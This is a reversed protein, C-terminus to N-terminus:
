WLYTSFSFSRYSLIKAIEKATIVMTDIQENDSALFWTILKRRVAGETSRPRKCGVLYAIDSFLKAPSWINNFGLVSCSLFRPNCARARHNGRHIQLVLDVLFGLIARRFLFSSDKKCARHPFSDYIQIKVWDDWFVLCFWFLLPFICFNWWEKLPGRCLSIKLTM